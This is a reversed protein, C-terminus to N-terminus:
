HHVPLGPTSCNLPRLTPCSQAVSSFQLGDEQRSLVERPLVCLGCSGTTQTNRFLPLMALLRFRDAHTSATRDVVLALTSPFEVLVNPLCRGSRWVPELSLPGSGLAAM